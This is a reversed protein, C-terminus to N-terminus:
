GGAPRHALLEALCTAAPNEIWIRQDPPLEGRAVSRNMVRVVIATYRLAAFVEHWHTDGPERGACAAYFARQEERTPEGPLRKAGLSEHSWRDFMLWWGLDLEPPGIAVNEFDTVCACRFGSWIMNGPRADGWCVGLRADTPVRRRLWALGEEFVPHRRGALEREAFRQWLELQLATGPSRGPPVLWSFGADRWDVAHIRALVRLGDELMRRREEAAAEAFFGEKTYIPHEIPVQGPVFGMVFFPAGLVAPDSEYGVRPALPIGGTRALAVMTRWQIWVEVDLGPAQAPYVSPEPLERRLVYREELERGGRRLRVPFILTEASYGGKPRALEGLRLDTAGPLRAALWGELPARLADADPRGEM